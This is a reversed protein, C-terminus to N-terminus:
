NFLSWSVGIDISRLQGPYFPTAFYGPNPLGQNFHVVKLFGRFTKIRFNFFLEIIPYSYIGFNNQIFFQQTLPDYGDAYYNSKWNVEIGTEIDANGEHYSQAYYTRFNAYWKPIRFTNAAPGEVRTFAVENDFHFYSWITLNLNAGWTTIDAHGKAQFPDIITSCKDTNPARRFYIPSETRVFRGFSRLLIGPLTLKCAGEIQRDLPPQFSKNWNRHQSNYYLALFPPMYKAEDYALEFISGKYSGHLKYLDGELYESGLHVFDINKRVNIRTYVGLYHELDKKTNIINFYKLRYYYQYFFRHIEGKIGWENSFSKMVTNDQISDYKSSPQNSLFNKSTDNLKETKFYNFTNKFLLEHYVHLPEALVVQQYLFYQQRLEGSQIKDEPRLNNSVEVKPELWKIVPINKDGIIGGTERIRHEKRYFSALVQYKQNDTKYYGLLTFPYSIVQRDYPIKSPIHERDTMITEFIAGLHWNKNFSRAHSVDFLYSGYNAFVVTGDTYPAKTDYYKQLRPDRFYIDFVYFGSETGINKPFTYFLHKAATGENGLDQLKYALKQKYTFRDIKEISVSVPKFSTAINYKLEAPTIFFTNHYGHIDKTSDDLFEQEQGLAINVWCTFFVFLCIYLRHAM